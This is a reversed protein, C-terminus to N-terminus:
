GPILGETRGADDLLEVVEDLTADPGPLILESASLEDDAMARGVTSVRGFLESLCAALAAQDRAAVADALKEDIANLSNIEEDPVDWQGQELVRVIM